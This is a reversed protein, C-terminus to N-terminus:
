ISGSGDSLAVSNHFYNGTVEAPRTVLGDDILQRVAEEMWILHESYNLAAPAAQAKHVWPRGEVFHPSVIRRVEKFFPELHVRLVVLFTVCPFRAIELLNLPLGLRPAEEVNPTGITAEWSKHCRSPPRYFTDFNGPRAHGDLIERDVRLRKGLNGNVSGCVVGYSGPRHKFVDMM